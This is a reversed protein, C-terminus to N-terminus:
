KFSSNWSKSIKQNVQKNSCVSLSPKKLYLNAAEKIEKSSITELRIIIEKDHDKKLGIGLM